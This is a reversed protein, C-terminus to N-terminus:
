CNVDSSLTYSGRDTTLYLQTGDFNGDIVHDLPIEYRDDPLPAHSNELVVTGSGCLRLFRASVYDDMTKPRQDYEVRDLQLITYDKDGDEEKVIRIEHGQWQQLLHKLQDTGLNTRQAM